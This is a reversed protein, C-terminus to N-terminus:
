YMLNKHLLNWSVILWVWGVCALVVLTETIRAWWRYQHTFWVHIGHLVVFVLGAIGIWAFAQVVRIFSDSSSSFVSLHESGYVFFGLWAAVVLLDILCVVRTATRAFRTVGFLPLSASYHARIMAAVPWLLLTAILVLLVGGLLGYNFKKSRYWPVRQGVAAPFDTLLQMRGSSDQRFAIHRKGDRDQYLLSGTDYWRRPKGNLGKRSDVVVTGDPGPKAEDVGLWTLIRLINTQSRRSSIYSGSASRADQVATPVHPLAPTPVPFYRDLFQQWLPDRPSIDSRGESNYSVFFGVNADLILHLDSHFYVTDGGHGIIRHGNQSEEYFGLAMGNMQPDLGFQRSHMLQATEPKLIQKDEFRGDQLHAIMFRAIDGAPASVAGAPAPQVFEFPKAGDSELKFGASMLPKLADPLPQAFTSHTMRLPAFINEQIYQEFPKGSVRQVIYGALGAGYNSYAPVSGPPFIRAPMHTTMYTQLPMLRGPDDSILDKIAEEFGPTHTMLNRLTIPAGFTPPIKFDLYDNIDRDLELKGQEVLQMVATWTFLKSVSGPRFLTDDVSVPKKRDADGYGYGRAFLVNGDKVVIVVAGAIDNRQLQLPILGDFFADLDAPTLEHQGQPASPTTQPVSPQPLTPQPVQAWTGAFLSIAILFQAILRGINGKLM